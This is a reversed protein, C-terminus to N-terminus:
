EHAKGKWTSMSRHVNLVRLLRQFLVDPLVGRFFVAARVSRPRKPSYRGRKLAGEVIAKAVVDHNRVRPVILAGLGKMSAGAFLQIEDLRKVWFFRRSIGM